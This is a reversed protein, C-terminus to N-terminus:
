DLTTATAALVLNAFAIFLMKSKREPTITRMMLFPLIMIITLVM